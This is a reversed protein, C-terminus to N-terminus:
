LRLVCDSICRCLIYLVHMLDSMCRYLLGVSANIFCEFILVFDVFLASRAGGGRPSVLVCRRLDGWLSVIMSVSKPDIFVIRM